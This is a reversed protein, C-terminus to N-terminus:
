RPRSPIRSGYADPASGTGDGKALLREVAATAHIDATDLVTTGLRKFDDVLPFLETGGVIVGDINEARMMRAVIAVIGDRTSQPIDGSFLDTMYKQHLYDRETEQPAIVEIGAGDFADQYFTADMTFRTGLLGLKRRGQQVAVDRTVEVISILPVRSRERVDAFVIHPTNAAILAFDAGADGLGDVERVLLTTLDDYRGAPLLSLMAAADISNIIIRPFGRGADRDRFKAVIARYYAITSEPGIGGVIGVARKTTM